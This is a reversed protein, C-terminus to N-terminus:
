SNEAEKKELLDRWKPGDFIVEDGFWYDHCLEEGAPIDRVASFIVTTDQENTDWELNADGSHNYIMGLGCPLCEETGHEGWDFLYEYLLTHKLHEVEEHSLIIAPCIEVIDGEKFPADSYVGRGKGPVDKVYLM